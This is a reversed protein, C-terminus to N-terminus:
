PTDGALFYGAWFFPHAFDKGLKGSAMARQALALSEAKSKGEAYNRFTEVVLRKASESEVGWHTVLMSRSGAIFFARSLGSLTQDEDDSYAGTNCASLVVWDANLRLGVVDETTLLSDALGSGENAMALAAQPVQPLERPKVGHTAFAIVRRDDLKAKLVASRTAEKGLFVNGEAKVGLTAAIALVEDRTEPLPPLSSYDFATGSNGNVRL